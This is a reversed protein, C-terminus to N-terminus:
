QVIAGVCCTLIIVRLSKPQKWFGSIRERQLAASEIGSLHETAEFLEQDRALRAGRILLEVDLAGQLDPHRSYTARVDNDQDSPDRHLLPNDVRDGETKNSFTHSQRFNISFSAVLM